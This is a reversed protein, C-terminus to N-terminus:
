SYNITYDSVILFRGTECDYAIFVCPTEDYKEPVVNYEGTDLNRFLFLDYSIQLSSELEPVVMLPMLKKIMPDIQTTWKESSRLQKEFPTRDTEFVMGKCLTYDGYPSIAAKVNNPFAFDSIDTIPQLAESDYVNGPAFCYSGILLLFAVSVVGVAVIGKYNAGNAKQRLGVLITAVGVPIALWMVWVYRLLGGLGYIEPQGILAAISFSVPLSVISALVLLSAIKKM